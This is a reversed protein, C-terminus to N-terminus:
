PWGDPGKNKQDNDTTVLGWRKGVGTELGLDQPIWYLDSIVEKGKGMGMGCVCVTEQLHASSSLLGSDGLIGEGFGERRGDLM